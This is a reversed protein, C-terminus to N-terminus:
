HKLNIESSEVVNSKNLKRDLMWCRFKVFAPKIGPYPSAPINLDIAGTVSRGKETSNLRPIRQNFNLTDSRGPIIFPEWNSANKISYQVFFNFFGSNGYNYPPFSDGASLGLDGDEDRYNITLIIMSDRGAKNQYLKYSNFSIEPIESILQEDKCGSYFLILFLFLNIVVKM